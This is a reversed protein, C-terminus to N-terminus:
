NMHQLAVSQASHNGHFNEDAEEKHSSDALIDTDLM